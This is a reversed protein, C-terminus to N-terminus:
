SMSVNATSWQLDKLRVLCWQLNHPPIKQAGQLAERMSNGGLNWSSVGCRMQVLQAARSLGRCGKRAPAHKILARMCIGLSDGKDRQLPLM